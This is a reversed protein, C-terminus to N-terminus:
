ASSAGAREWDVYGRAGPTYFTSPDPQTLPAGTQWREVLDPNAIFPTGFSILDARGEALTAEAGERDFGGNLILPGRFGERLAAATAEFEAHRSKILHLYALTPLSRVLALFQAQVDDHLPLDNFTNYPSLRLGVREAGVARVVADVVEMVFRNRRELSGGYADRRRNSHPHLFQELLYGNAGHLEIGDFGAAIANKAAQAFEQQAEQLDAEGMAMPEPHPQPGHQDTYMSGDACVASPALLRAGPPLNAPHGIRGTHMLQVFIRGGADHVAETVARWGEVQEQSYLGPIRPYGLGNPSPATGETVLLGAAARQAYYERMLENPISGVARSRTMPAMVIRNPLDLAGLRTPTFLQM